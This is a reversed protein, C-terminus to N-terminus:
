KHAFCFSCNSAIKRKCQQNTKKIIHQCYNVKKPIILDKLTKISLSKIPLHENLCFLQDKKLRFSGKIFASNLHLNGLKTVYNNSCLNNNKFGEDLWFTFVNKVKLNYELDCFNDIWINNIWYLKKFYNNIHKTSKFLLYYSKTHKSEKKFFIPGLSDGFTALLDEFTSVSNKIKLIIYNNDFGFIYYPKNKITDNYDGLKESFEYPFLGNQSLFYYGVSKLFLFPAGAPGSIKKIKKYKDFNLNVLTM